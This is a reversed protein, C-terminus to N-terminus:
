NGLSLETESLQTWEKLHQECVSDHMVGPELSQSLSWRVKGGLSNLSFRAQEADCSRM